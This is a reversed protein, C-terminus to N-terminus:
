FDYRDRMIPSPPPPSHSEQSQAQVEPNQSQGQVRPEETDLDRRSDDIKAVKSLAISKEESLNIGLWKFIETWQCAYGRADMHPDEYQLS